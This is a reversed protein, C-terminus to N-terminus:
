ARVAWSMLWDDGGSRSEGVSRVKGMAIMGNWFAKDLFRTIASM